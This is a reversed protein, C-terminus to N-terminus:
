WGLRTSSVAPSSTPLPLPPPLALPRPPPVEQNVMTIKHSYSTPTHPFPSHSYSPFVSPLFPFSLQLSPPLVSSPLSSHLSSPLFLPLSSTHVIHTRELQMSCPLKLWLNESRIWHVAVGVCMCVDVRLWVVLANGHCPPSPVFPPPSLLWHPQQQCCGPSVETPLINIHVTLM